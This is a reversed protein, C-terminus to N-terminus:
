RAEMKSITLSTACSGLEGTHNVAAIPLTPTPLPVTENTLMFIADSVTPRNAANGQVCLMAVHICRQMQATSNSVELEPDVLEM